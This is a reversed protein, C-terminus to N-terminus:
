ADHSCRRGPVTHRRTPLDPGTRSPPARADKRRSVMMSASSAAAYPWVARTASADADGAVAPSPRPGGLQGPAPAARASPRGGQPRSRGGPVANDQSVCGSVRACAVGGSCGDAAWRGSQWDVYPSGPRPPASCAGKANTMSPIPRGPSCLRTRLLRYRKQGCSHGAHRVVRARGSDAAVHVQPGEEGNHRFHFTQDALADVESEGAFRHGTRVSDGVLPLQPAGLGTVGPSASCACRRARLQCGRSGHTRGCPLRRVGHQRTRTGTPGLPALLDGDHVPSM